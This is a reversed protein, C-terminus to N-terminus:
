KPITAPVAKASADVVTGEFKIRPDTVNVLEDLEYVNHYGYGYLNIYTPINLAMMRPRAQQAFQNAEARGPQPRPNFVKSAFDVQNGEFNNNCYILIKTEPSPIVQALSGQTFDTFALHKAGQIHIREYRNTSRADLIIVGPEQSLKLFTNLDVLRSARHAEVEAMISKFDGFSVKAKPYHTQNTQASATCALLSFAALALLINKM